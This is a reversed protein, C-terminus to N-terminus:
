IDDDYGFRITMIRIAQALESNEKALDEWTFKKRIEERSNIDTRVGPFAKILEEVRYTCVAFHQAMLNWDLYFKMMKTLESDTPKASTHKYIYDWSEPNLSHLTEFVKLPHRVQHFIVDFRTCDTGRYWVAKFRAKGDPSIARTWDATGHFGVQEHRVILGWKKLAECIYKTGSRPCGTILIFPAKSKAQKQSSSTGILPTIM